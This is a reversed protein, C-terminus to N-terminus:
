ELKLRIEQLQDIESQCYATPVSTGVAGFTLSPTELSQNMVCTPDISYSLGIQKGFEQLLLSTAYASVADSDGSTLDNIKANSLVIGFDQYTRAVSDAPNAFDDAYIIFLNPEGFIFRRRSATVAKAIDQDTLKGTQIQDNDSLTVARGTAKALQDTFASFINPDPSLDQAAVVEVVIPTAGVLYAARADGPQHLNLLTRMYDDKGLRFRTTQNFNSNPSSAIQLKLYGYTGFVLVLIILISIKLKM